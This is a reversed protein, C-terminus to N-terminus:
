CGGPGDLEEDRKEGNPLLEVGEFVRAPYSHANTFSWSMRVALIAGLLLIGVYLHLPSVAMVRVVCYSPVNRHRSICIPLLRSSM